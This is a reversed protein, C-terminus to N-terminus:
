RSNRSPAGRHTAWPYERDTSPGSAARGSSSRRSSSSNRSAEPGRERGWGSDERGGFPATLAPGFVGERALESARAVDTLLAPELFFGRRDLRRGGTVVRADARDPGGRGAGCVAGRQELRELGAAVWPSFGAVRGTLVSLGARDALLQATRM